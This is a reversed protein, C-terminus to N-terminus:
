KPESLKVYVMLPPSVAVTEIVTFGTLSAGTAISSVAEVSSSTSTSISTNSLSVSTSFSGIVTSLKVCGAFPVTVLFRSPVSLYTGSSSKLPVSLKVYVMLPPSVAVTVTVTSATSSLGTATSSVAEVSSSTSTSMSTNSLSVSTSPSGIVTSLKVCGAFPVTVLFRSPVSLYTGSGSKLPVSLKVYVILPPSVAVTVTVTSSTLSAGTATSSVAVVSSSTSTFMSTTSLSVSISPSGIATTLKVCGVFPVTDSFKSPVRLYTGSGSKLPVSLKVYVMLPPSLAVTVTVTSATSSLGTATSSVAEVSSSTSTSMSTNSLSVSTSPSGIVTSLKVCGVFPSTVSFRSPVNLYVGSASKLPVSLKVYVM